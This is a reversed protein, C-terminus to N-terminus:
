EPLGVRKSLAKLRADSRLMAFEPLHILDRGARVPGLPAMREAAAFARDKDGLGALHSSTAVPTIYREGVKEAEDRRGARGYALRSVASKGATASPIAEEIRGQGLRILSLPPV